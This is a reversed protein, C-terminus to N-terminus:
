VAFILALGALAAVAGILTNYMTGKGEVVYFKEGLGLMWALAASFLLLGVIELGKVGKQFLDYLVFGGVLAFIAKVIIWVTKESLM